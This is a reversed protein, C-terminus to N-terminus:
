NATLYEAMIQLYIRRVKDDDDALRQAFTAGKVIWIYGGDIKIVRGQGIYEAIQDKLLTIAEWSSSRRWLNATMATPNGLDSTAVSYTIYPMEAGDPVSLEDYAPVGFSEWFNQLAQEKNM